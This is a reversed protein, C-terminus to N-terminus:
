PQEEGKGNFEIGTLYGRDDWTVSVSLEHGCLVAHLDGADILMQPAQTEAYNVAASTPRVLAVKRGQEKLDPVLLRGPRADLLRDITIQFALALSFLEDVTVNRRGQEIEGVTQRTWPHGLFNMRQAVLEQRWGRLRRVAGLNRALIQSPFLAHPLAIGARDPTPEPM